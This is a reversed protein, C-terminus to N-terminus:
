AAPALDEKVDEKVEEKLAERIKILVKENIAKEGGLIYIDKNQDVIYSLTDNNINNVNSLIIPAKVKNAFYGGALQLGALAAYAYM